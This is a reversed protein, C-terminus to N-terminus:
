YGKQRTGFQAPDDQAASQQRGMKDEDAPYFLSRSKRRATAAVNPDPSLGVRSALLHAIYLTSTGKRVQGGHVHTAYLFARDLDTLVASM